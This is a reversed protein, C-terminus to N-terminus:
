DDGDAGDNDGCANLKMLLTSRKGGFGGGAGTAAM